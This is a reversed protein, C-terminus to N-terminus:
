LKVQLEFVVEACLCVPLSKLCLACFDDTSKEAVFVCGIWITEERMESSDGLSYAFHLLAYDEYGSYALM